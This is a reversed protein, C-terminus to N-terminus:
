IEADTVAHLEIARNELAPTYDSHSGALWNSLARSSRDAHQLLELLLRGLHLVRQAAALDLGRHTHAGSGFTETQLLRIQEATLQELQDVDGSIVAKQSRELSAALESLFDVSCAAPEPQAPM